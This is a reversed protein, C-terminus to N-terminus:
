GNNTMYIPNKYESIVENFMKSFRKDYVVRTNVSKVGHIVSAHSRKLIRGVGCVHIKMDNRMLWMVTHRAAVVNAKRSKSMILLPDADFKTSAITMALYVQNMKIKHKNTYEILNEDGSIM